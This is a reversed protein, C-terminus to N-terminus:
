WYCVAGAPHILESNMKSAISNYADIDFENYPYANDITTAVIVAEEVDEDEDGKLTVLAKYHDFKGHRDLVEVVTLNYENKKCFRSLGAELNVDLNGIKLYTM